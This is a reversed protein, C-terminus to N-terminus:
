PRRGLYALMRDAPSADDGVEVPEQFSAGRPYPGQPAMMKSTMGYVEEAVEDDITIDQGTARALDWGHVVADALALGLVAAGPTDGWPMSFDRELAGPARFAELAARAAREYAAVHDEGAYDTGDSMEVRRGEAGAAFTTCGAIIHNLMARVDWETCPTPEGFQDPTTGAVVSGTRELAREYMSVDM